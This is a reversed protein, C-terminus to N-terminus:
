KKMCYYEKLEELSVKDVYYKKKLKATMCDEIKVIQENGYERKRLQPCSKCYYLSDCDICKNHSFARINKYKGLEEWLNWFDDELINFRDNCEICASMNGSYDIHFESRAIFCFHSPIFEGKEKAVCWNNKELAKDSLTKATLEDTAELLVAELNDIAYSLPKRNDDRGPAMDFSYRLRDKCYKNNIIQMEPLDNCNISLIPAKLAFRLNNAKLLDLANILKNFASGDGTVKLYTKENAGYISIDILFPPYKNFVSIWKENLL